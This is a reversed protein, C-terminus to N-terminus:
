PNYDLYEFLAPHIERAEAEGIRVTYGRLYEQSVGTSAVPQNDGVTISAVGDYLYDVRNGVSEIRGTGTFIAVVEKCGMQNKKGKDTVVQYFRVGKMKSEKRKFLKITSGIKGRVIPTLPLPLSM